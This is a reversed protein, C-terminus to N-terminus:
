LPAPASGKHEVIERNGRLVHERCWARWRQSRCAAQLPLSHPGTEAGSLCKGFQFTQQNEMSVRCKGDGGAGLCTGEVGQFRPGKQPEVSSKNLLIYKKKDEPFASSHNYARSHLVVSDRGGRRRGKNQCVSLIQYLLKAWRQQLKFGEHTTYMSRVSALSEM